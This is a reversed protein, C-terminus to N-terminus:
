LETAPRLGIAFWRDPLAIRLSLPPLRRGAIYLLDRTLLQRSDRIPFKFFKLFWNATITPIVSTRPRACKPACASSMPLPIVAGFGFDSRGSRGARGSFSPLDPAPTLEVSNFSMM